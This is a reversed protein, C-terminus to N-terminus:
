HLRKNAHSLNRECRKKDLEYLSIDLLKALEAMGQMLAYDAAVQTKQILEDLDMEM